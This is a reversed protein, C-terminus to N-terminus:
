LASCRRRWVDTSSEVLKNKFTEQEKVYQQKLEEQKQAEM